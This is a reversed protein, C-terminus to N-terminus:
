DRIAEQYGLELQLPKYPQEDRLWLPCQEMFQLITNRQAEDGIQVKNCLVVIAESKVPCSGKAKNEISFFLSLNPNSWLCVAARLKHPGRPRGQNRTVSASGANTACFECAPWPLCGSSGRLIAGWVLHIITLYNPMLSKAYKQVLGFSYGIIFLQSRKSDGLIQLLLWYDVVAAFM